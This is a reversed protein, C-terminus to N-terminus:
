QRRLSSERVVLSPRLMVTPSAGNVNRPISGAILRVLEVVSRRGIEIVQQRVTTLRPQTFAAEPIDDFGVMAIDEPIRVHLDNAARIAGIAM